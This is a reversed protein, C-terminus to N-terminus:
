VSTIFGGSIGGFPKRKRGAAVSLAEDVSRQNDEKSYGRLFM